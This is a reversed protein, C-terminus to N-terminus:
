QEHNLSQKPLLRDENMTWYFCLSEMFLKIRDNSFHFSGATLSASCCFPCDNLNELMQIAEDRNHVVVEVANIVVDDSSGESHIM